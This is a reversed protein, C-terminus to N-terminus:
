GGNMNLIHRQRFHHATKYPMDVQSFFEEFGENCIYDLIAAILHEDTFDRDRDIDAILRPIGYRNAVYNSNAMNQVHWFPVVVDSKAKVNCLNLYFFSNETQGGVLRRRRYTRKFYGGVSTVNEM